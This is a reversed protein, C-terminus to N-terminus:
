PQLCCRHAGEWECAWSVPTGLSQLIHSPPAPCSASAAQYAGQWCTSWNHSQGTPLYGCSGLLKWSPILVKMGGFESGSVFTAMRALRPSAPPPRSCAPCAMSQKIASLYSIVSPWVVSVPPSHSQSEPIRYDSWLVDAPLKLPKLACRWGQYSNVRVVPESILLALSIVTSYLPAM